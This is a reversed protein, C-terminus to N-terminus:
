RSLLIRDEPPVGLLEGLGCLHRWGGVHVVRGRCSRTTLGIRLALAGDDERTGSCDCDHDHDHDHAHRAEHLEAAVDAALGPHPVGALIELNRRSLLESGILRWMHRSRTSDGVPVVRAGTRRAHDSAALWEFPLALQAAVGQLGPPLNGDPLRHTALRRALGPARRRRADLAFPSLELTIIRPELDDLLRTLAPRGKPDLHVVGVLILDTANHM